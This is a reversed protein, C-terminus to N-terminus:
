AYQSEQDNYIVMKMGKLKFDKVHSPTPYLEWYDIDKNANRVTKLLSYKHIHAEYGIYFFVGQEGIEGPYLPSWFPLACGIRSTQTIWTKTEKNYNFKSASLHM